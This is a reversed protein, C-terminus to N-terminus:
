LALSRWHGSEQTYRSSNRCFDYSASFSSRMHDTFTYVPARDAPPLALESLM